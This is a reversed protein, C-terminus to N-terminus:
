RDGVLRDIIETELHTVLGPRNDLRRVHHDALSGAACDDQRILDLYRHDGVERRRHLLKGNFKVPSLNQLIRADCM